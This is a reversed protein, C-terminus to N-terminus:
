PSTPQLPVYSVTVVQGIAGGSADPDLRIHTIRGEIVIRASDTPETGSPVWEAAPVDGGDPVAQNPHTGVLSAAAVDVGLKNGTAAFYVHIQHRDTRPDCRIYEDDTDAAGITLTTPIYPLM